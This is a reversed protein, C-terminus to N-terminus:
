ASGLEAGGDIGDRPFVATGKKATVVKEVAKLPARLAGVPSAATSRFRRVRAASVPFRRLQRGYSALRWPSGTARWAGAAKRLGTPWTPAAACEMGAASRVPGSAAVDATAHPAALPGDRRRGIMFGRLIATM